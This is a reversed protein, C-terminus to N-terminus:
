TSGNALGVQVFDKMSQTEEEDEKLLELLGNSAPPPKVVEVEVEGVISLGFVKPDVLGSKVGGTVAAAAEPSTTTVEVNANAMTVGLGSVGGVSAVVVVDAPVVSLTAALAAKLSTQKADNFTTLAMDLLRLEFHVVHKPKPNAAAYAAAKKAEDMRKTKAEAAQPPPYRHRRLNTPNPYNM